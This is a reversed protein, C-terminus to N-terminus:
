SANANPGHFFTPALAIHSIMSELIPNNINNQFTGHAIAKITRKAEDTAVDLGLAQEQEKSQIEDLRFYRDELRHGLM